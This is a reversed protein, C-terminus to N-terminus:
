RRIKAQERTTPSTLAQLTALLKQGTAIKIMREKREKNWENYNKKIEKKQKKETNEAERDKIVNEKEEIEKNEDKIDELKKLFILKWKKYM